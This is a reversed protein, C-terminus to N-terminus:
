LPKPGGTELVGNEEMFALQCFHAGIHEIVRASQRYLAGMRLEKADHAVQRKAACRERGDAVVEQQLTGLAQLDLAGTGDRWFLESFLLLVDKGQAAMSGYRYRGADAGSFLLNGVGDHLRIQRKDDKQFVAKRRHVFWWSLVEFGTGFAAQEHEGRPLVVRFPTSNGAFLAELKIFVRSQNAQLIDVMERSASVGFFFM